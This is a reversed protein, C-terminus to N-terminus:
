HKLERMEYIEEDIEKDIKVKGVDIEIYKVRNNKVKKIFM